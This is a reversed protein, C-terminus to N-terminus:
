AVTLDDAWYLHVVPIYFDPALHGKEFNASEDLIGNEALDQTMILERMEHVGHPNKFFAKWIYANAHANFTAMYRKRIDQLREEGPVELIDEQQTLVNKIRIMRCSEPIRAM